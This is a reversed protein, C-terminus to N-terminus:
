GAIKGDVIRVSQKALRAINPDHTIIVVTKGSNHQNKIIEMVEMGTEPDLNGTPEDALLIAPNKVLACRPHAGYATADISLTKIVM